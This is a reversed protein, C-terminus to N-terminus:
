FAGRRGIVAFLTKWLILLDATLNWNEVYRLDLRVTEEWSLLSRGSVQWLGTLGPKVLLRRRADQAYTDVESQLPPRPGVLSMDGRLVNLLQPLEDLSYKRLFDGVPTIRPDRKLKFLPGAGQNQAALDALRAEADVVMSRFKYVMFTRGDVGVRAQKFIVPGRDHLKIAVAVVLLLPAILLSGVATAVLDFARKLVRRWGTFHPEDIQLLPLGAYPQIHMRPGAVEVLGPHVLLDMGTGEMSWALHRLYDHRTSESSTVAVADCALQGALRTVATLDGIVPLGLARARSLDEAPVCIGVVDLGCHTERKLVQHLQETGYPSGAIIVRRLNRGQGQRRHLQKRVGFRCAISLLSGVPAAVVAATLLRQAGTVGVFFAGIVVLGICARLVARMEGSGVGVNKRDYGHAVAIATVWFVPSLAFALIAIPGRFSLSDSILATIVVALVAMILDLGVLTVAYNRSWQPFGPPPVTSSAQQVVADVHEGDCWDVPSQPLVVETANPRSLQMAPAQPRGALSPSAEDGDCERMGDPVVKHFADVVGIQQLM